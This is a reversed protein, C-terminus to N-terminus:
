VQCCLDENEIIKFRGEGKGPENEKANKISRLGGERDKDHRGKSQLNSNSM